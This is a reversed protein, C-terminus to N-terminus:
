HGLRVGVNETKASQAIAEELPVPLTFIGAKHHGARIEKQSSLGRECLIAASSLFSPYDPIANARKIVWEKAIEVVFESAVWETAVTENERIPNVVGKLVIDSLYDRNTARAGALLDEADDNAVAKAIEGRLVNKALELVPEAAHLVEHIVVDNATTTAHFRPNRSTEEEVAVAMLRDNDLHRYFIIEGQAFEAVVIKDAEKAKRGITFKVATVKGITPYRERSDAISRLMLDADERDTGDEIRLILKDAKYEWGNGRRAFELGGEIGWGGNWRLRRETPSIREIPRSCNDAIEGYLKPDFARLSLHKEQFRADAERTVGRLKADLLRTKPEVRMEGNTYAIQGNRDDVSHLM